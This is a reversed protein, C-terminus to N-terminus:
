NFLLLFSTSLYIALPLTVLSCIGMFVVLARVKVDLSGEPSVALVELSRPGPRNPGGTNFLRVQLEAEPPILILVM